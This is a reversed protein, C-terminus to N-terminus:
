DSTLRQPFSGLINRESHHRSFPSLTCGFSHIISQQAFRLWPLLQFSYINTTERSYCREAVAHCARRALTLFPSYQATERPLVRRQDPGAVGLICWSFPRSSKLPAAGGECKKEHQHTRSPTRGWQCCSHLDRTHSRSCQNKDCHPTKLSEEIVVWNPLFITSIFVHKLGEGQVGLYFCILIGWM